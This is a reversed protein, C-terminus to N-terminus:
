SSKEKIIEAVKGSISTESVKQSSETKVPVESKVEVRASEVKTPEL